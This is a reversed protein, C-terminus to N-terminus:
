NVKYKKGIYKKCNPNKKFVQSYSLYKFCKIILINVKKINM